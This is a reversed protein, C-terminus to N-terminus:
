HKIGRQAEEANKQIEIEEAVALVLAPHYESFKDNTFLFQECFAPTLESIDHTELLKAVVRGFEYKRAIEAADGARLQELKEGFGKPPLQINEQPSIRERDFREKGGSYYQGENM